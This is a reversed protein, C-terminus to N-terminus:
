LCVKRDIMQGRLKNEWNVLPPSLSSFLFFLFESLVRTATARVPTRIIVMWLSSTISIKTIIEKIQYHYQHDHDHRPPHQQQHNEGVQQESTLVVSTNNQAGARMEGSDLGSSNWVSMSSSKKGSDLGVM